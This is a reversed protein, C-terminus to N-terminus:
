RPDLKNRYTILKLKPDYKQFEWANPPHTKFKIDELHGKVFNKGPFYRLSM